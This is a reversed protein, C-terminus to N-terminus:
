EVLDVLAVVAKGILVGIAILLAVILIDPLFLALGAIVAASRLGAM